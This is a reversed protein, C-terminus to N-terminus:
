GGNQRYDSYASKYMPIRRSDNIRNTLVLKCFLKGVKNKPSNQKHQRIEAPSGNVKQISRVYVLPDIEPRISRWPM